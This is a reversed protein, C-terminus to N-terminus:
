AVEWWTLPSVRDTLRQWWDHWPMGPPRAMMTEVGHLAAMSIPEVYQCDLEEDEDQGIDWWVGAIAQTLHDIQFIVRM